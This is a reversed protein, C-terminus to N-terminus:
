ASEEFALELDWFRQNRQSDQWLFRRIESLSINQSVTIISCSRCFAQRSSPSSNKVSKVGTHRFGASQYHRRIVELTATLSVSSKLDSCYRFLIQVLCQYSPCNSHKSTLDSSYLHDSCYRCLILINRDPSSIYRNQDWSPYVCIPTSSWYYLLVNPGLWYPIHIRCYLTRPYHGDIISVNSWGFFM